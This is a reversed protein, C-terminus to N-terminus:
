PTPWPASATTTTSPTAPPRSPMPPWNPCTWTSRRCWGAAPPAPRTRGRRRPERAPARRRRIRRHRRPPEARDPRGRGQPEVEAAVAGQLRVPRVAVCRAARRRGRRRPLGAPAPVGVPRRRAAPAQRAHPDARARPRRLRRPRPADLQEYFDNVIPLRGVRDTVRGLKTGIDVEDIAELLHAADTRPDGKCCCTILADHIDDLVPLPRGRLRALMIPTSRRARDRRGVVPARRAPPRGQDRRGRLRHRGPGAGGAGTPPTASTACSTSGRPATAPATAPCDPSASTRTRPSPSTCRARAAGAAAARPRGPELFIHFGGCVIMADAPDVKWDKLCPPSPRGCSVSATSPTAAPSNARHPRRGCRPASCRSTAASASTTSRGPRRSSARGVDRRLSRYGAPRPLPPPLVRERASLDELDSRAPRAPAPAAPARGAGGAPSTTRPTTPCTSSCRM